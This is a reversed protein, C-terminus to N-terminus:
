GSPSPAAQWSSWNVIQVAIVPGDLEVRRYQAYKARLLAYGTAMEIGSRHITAIGDVRVWWLRTWDDDYHDVLLSVADNGEINVLRQLRHTSKPKSDIATYLVDSRDGPMAFVVPVLHPAGDSRTTGLVAVPAAAFAAVTDLNAM